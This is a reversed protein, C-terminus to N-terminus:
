SIYSVVIVTKLGEQTIVTIESGYQVSVAAM